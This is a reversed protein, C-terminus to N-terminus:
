FRTSIDMQLTDVEANQRYRSAADSEAMFYTMAVNFNKLLDYQVKLKHGRSGTYGAAFDSDTFTGAVGNAEVDRYNYDLAAGLVNTRLGFLWATNEDGDYHWTNTAPDLFDRADGNRVYQGYLSLPAPLGTIDLQGFVEYLGFRDTTNGNGRLAVAPASVGQEENNFQNISAGLTLRTNRSADFSTGLQLTYLSLDNDFQVGEGDVNDKLVFYGASGFYTTSGSNISYSSAVGEPNIDTDWAVDGVAMWPQKMKGALLRLGPVRAPHYDIYALDLWLFKKDAYADFDQNTGRRDASNGSAIQIGAEVEPNVQAIAGLRARIRQRERDRGGNGPEAEVDIAEHRVRVDGLLRTAKAWGALRNIEEVGNEGAYEKEGAHGRTERAQERALDASLETHQAQTIAGNKLLIDLLKADVSGAQLPAITTCLVMGVLATMPIRM